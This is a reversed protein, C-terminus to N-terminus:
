LEGWDESFEKASEPSKCFDIVKIFYGKENESFNDDKLRENKYEEWTLPRFENSTRGLIIMINQAILEYEYARFVSNWPFVNFDKPKM